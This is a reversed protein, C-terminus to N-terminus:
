CPSRAHLRSSSQRYKEWFLRHFQYQIKMETKSTCFFTLQCLGTLTNMRRRANLRYFCPMWLFLFFLNSVILLLRELFILLYITFNWAWLYYAYSSWLESILILTLHIWRSDESKYVPGLPFLAKVLYHFHAWSKPPHCL